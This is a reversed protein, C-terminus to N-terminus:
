KTLKERYWTQLTKSRRDLLHVSATDTRTDYSATEKVLVCQLQDNLQVINPFLKM